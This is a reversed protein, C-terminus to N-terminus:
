AVVGFGVVTLPTTVASWGPTYVRNDSARIGGIAQVAGSGTGAFCVSDITFTLPFNSIYTTAATSTTDTAPTITVFFVCFRQNIRFYRGSITPTGTSGLGVFSPTFVTGGDGEFVNNFFEIWSIRPLGTPEILLDNIPPPNVSM